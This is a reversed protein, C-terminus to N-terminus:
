ESTSFTRFDCRSESDYQGDADNPDTYRGRVRWEYTTGTSLVASYTTQALIENIATTTDGTLDDVESVELEYSNAGPVPLWQFTLIDSEGTAGDVPSVTVPEDLIATTSLYDTLRIYNGNVDTIDFTYFGNKMSPSLEFQNWFGRWGGIYYTDILEYDIIGSGPPGTITLTAIQDPSDAWENDACDTLEVPTALKTGSPTYRPYVSYLNPYIEFQNGYIKWDGNQKKLRVTARGWLRSPNDGNQDTYMELIESLVYAEDDDIAVDEITAFVKYGQTTNFFNDWYDIAAAKNRCTELYSDHLIDTIGTMNQDNRYTIWQTHAARVAEEDTTLGSLTHFYSILRRTEGKKAFMAFYSDADTRAQVLGVDEALWITQYGYDNPSDEAPYAHIRFKLTGNFVGASTMVDETGVLDSSFIYETEETDSSLTFTTQISDGVWSTNNAIRIPESYYAMNADQTWVGHLRLGNKHNSWFYAEATGTDVLATTSVGNIETKHEDTFLTWQDTEWGSNLPFYDSTNYTGSNSDNDNSCGILSLLAMTLLFALWSCVRKKRTNDISKM